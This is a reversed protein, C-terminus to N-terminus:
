AAVVDLTTTRIRGEVAEVLDGGTTTFVNNEVIAQMAADIEAKTVGPKPEEINLIVKKGAANKFVLDLDTDSSM